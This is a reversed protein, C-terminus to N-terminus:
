GWEDRIWPVDCNHPRKRGAFVVVSCGDPKRETHASVDRKGLFFGPPLVDQLLTANPALWEYVMQDGYKGAHSMHVQRLRRWDAYQEAGWGPEFVMVCSGYRCPWSPHGARQTFNACTAFGDPLPVDLLPGLPGCIVTDLDFYVCRGSGRLSPDLLELKAWWGERGRAPVNQIGPATEPQDTVCILRFPRGMHRQLMSQLRTVYGFPYKAGTRVCAVTIM